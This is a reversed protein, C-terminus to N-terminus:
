SVIPALPGKQKALFPTVIDVINNLMNKKTVTESKLKGFRIMMPWCTQNIENKM